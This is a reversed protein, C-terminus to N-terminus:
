PKEKRPNLTQEIDTVRESLESDGDEMLKQLGAIQESQTDLKASQDALEEAQRIQEAEVRRLADNMSTGTNPRVEHHIEDLLRMKAPLDALADITAVFRRVLPWVKVILIILAVVAGVLLVLQVATLDGLLRALQDETM